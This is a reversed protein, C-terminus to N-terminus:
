VYVNPLKPGHDVYTLLIRALSASVVCALLDILFCLACGGDAQYACWYEGTITAPCNAVYKHVCM